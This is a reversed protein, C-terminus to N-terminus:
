SGPIADLFKRYLSRYQGSQESGEQALQRASVLQGTKVYSLILAQDAAVLEMGSLRSRATQLYPIAESFEGLLQHIRGMHREAMGSLSHRHALLVQGRRLEERAIMEEDAALSGTERLHDSCVLEFYVYEMHWSSYEPVNLQASRFLEAAESFKQERMLVRAVMGSLPRMAGPHTRKDQWKKAVELETPTMEREAEAVLESWRCYADPNSKRMFPIGFITRMQVAVGYADYPNYGMKQSLSELDPIAEVQEADVHLPPEFSQLASALVRALEYQGKLSFHVHDDMLDWGIGARSGIQRFYSPVDCITVKNERAAHLIADVSSSPPRWPMSDADLAARYYSLADSENGLTEECEALLYNAQAHDPAQKVVDLLLERAKDSAEKMQRSAQSLQDGVAKQQAESLAVLRSDGLPALGRENAAPLCILLPVNNAKCVAAIQSVHAHLLRAAGERLDSEPEIYVDGIMAEMLTRGELDVSKGVLEQAVQMIALSRLRYQASLLAPSDMGQNVSAVGYAGFFENNGTYLIILDPEYRVAQKVIDLVPFSAVATTGLNIVEVQRDPWIGQLMQDLFVGATFGRPQPFGKIASAGCLFIRTTDTPKPMVMSFEDNTGPKERNAFFYGSSGATDSVVLTTGDPLPLERFFAAYGGWGFLRLVGELLALVLIPLCVCILRFVIRRRRSLSTAKM